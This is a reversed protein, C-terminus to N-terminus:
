QSDSDVTRTGWDCIEVQGHIEFILRADITNEGHLKRLTEWAEGNGSLGPSERVALLLSAMLGM